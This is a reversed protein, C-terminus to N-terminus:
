ERMALQRAVYRAIIDIELNVKTGVTYESAITNKMTYPILQVWFKEPEVTNITLSVGDICVSGKTAFYSALHQPYAIALSGNSEDMEVKDDITAVTDVHGSVLHGDLCAGPKLGAELNLRDGSKMTGLTTCKLTEVSLDAGFSSAEECQITLCVGNVAVSSGDRLSQIFSADSSIHLRSGHAQQTVKLVRGVAQVIGSFM